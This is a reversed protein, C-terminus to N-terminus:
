LMAISALATATHKEKGDIVCFVDAAFWRVQRGPKDRACPLDPARRVGAVVSELKYEATLAAQGRSTAAAIARQTTWWSATVGGPVHWAAAFLEPRAILQWRAHGAGWNTSSAGSHIMFGQRGVSERIRQAIPRSIRIPIGTMPAGPKGDTKQQSWAARIACAILIDAQIGRDNATAGSLWARCLDAAAASDYRRRDARPWDDRSRNQARSRCSAPDACRRSGRSPRSTLRALSQRNDRRAARLNARRISAPTAAARARVALMSPAATDLWLSLAAASRGRTATRDAVAVIRADPRCESQRRSGHAPRLLFPDSFRPCAM